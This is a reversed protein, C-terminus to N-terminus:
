WRCHNRHSARVSIRMEASVGTVPRSSSSQESWSPSKSRKTTLQVSNSGSVVGGGGVSSLGQLSLPTGM